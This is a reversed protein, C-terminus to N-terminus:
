ENNHELYNIMETVKDRLAKAEDLELTIIRDYVSLDIKNNDLVLSVLDYEVLDKPKQM